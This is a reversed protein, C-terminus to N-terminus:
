CKQFKKSSCGQTGSSTSSASATDRLDEASRWRVKEYSSRSRRQRLAYDPTSNCTEPLTDKLSDLDQLSKSLRKRM